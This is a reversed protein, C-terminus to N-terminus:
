YVACVVYIRYTSLVFVNFINILVHSLHDSTFHKSTLIAMHSFVM